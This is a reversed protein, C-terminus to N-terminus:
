RAFFEQATMGFLIADHYRGHIFVHERRRGEEVFGLKRHLALSAGNFAYVGTECKHFRREAFMYRLALTVAETAYGRRQYRRGIQVSYWFRGHGHDAESVGVTGVLAGSELAEVGLHLRDWDTRGTAREHFSAQYKELTRPPVVRSAAAKDETDADFAMVAAADATGLARLRVREGTFISTM